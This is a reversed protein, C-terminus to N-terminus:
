NTQYYFSQASIKVVSEYRLGADNLEGVQPAKMQKGLVVGWHNDGIGAFVINIAEADTKVVAAVSYELMKARLVQTIASLEMELTAEAPSSINFEASPVFGAHESPFYTIIETPKYFTNNVRYVQETTQQLIRLRTDKRFTSIERETEALFASVKKTRQKECDMNQCLVTAPLKALQARPVNLFGAGLVGFNFNAFEQMDEKSNIRTARIDFLNYPYFSPLYALPLKSEPLIDKLHRLLDRYEADAEPTFFSPVSAEVLSCLILSCSILVKKIM